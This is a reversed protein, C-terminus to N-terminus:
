LYGENKSCKGVCASKISTSTTVITLGQFCKCQGCYKYQYYKGNAGCCDGNDWNCGCNNNGDDCYGDGSYSSYSCKGECKASETALTSKIQMTASTVTTSTAKFAALCKCQKCYSYQHYKNNTGCCDGKDWNCGCNNNDDDCYGDGAFFSSGCKGSCISM